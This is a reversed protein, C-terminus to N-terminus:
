REPKKEALCVTCRWGRDAPKASQNTATHVRRGAGYRSDQDAHKCLCPKISVMSM